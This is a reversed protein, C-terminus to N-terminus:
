GRLPTSTSNINTISNSSVTSVVTGTCTNFIMTFTGNKFNINNMRNDNIQVYQPYGFNAILSCTALSSGTYTFSPFVNSNISVTNTTGANGCLNYIGVLDESNSSGTHNLIITNSNVTVGAATATGIRVAYLNTGSPNSGGGNNNQLYNSSVNLSYQNVTRIGYSDSGNGGGYNVITNGTAASIGGVDNLRDSFTYPSPAGFGMVAIGVHCSYIKNALINNYSNTGLASTIVLSVFNSTSTGAMIEIGRSGNAAIGAGAVGNVLRLTVACNKITNYQCGDTASAKYMGYGFEMTSPNSTNPDTIDIADITIYDSGIMWWVGDQVLSTPTATGGSYASILPNSGVGNKQFYVQNTASAGPINYLKYGGLPATETYGANVNITVPGAVGLTNLTNIAAAITPFSGPVTFSGAIQPKVKTFCLMLCFLFAVKKLKKMLM